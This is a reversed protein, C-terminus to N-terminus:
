ESGEQTIKSPPYNLNASRRRPPFDPAAFAAILVRRGLTGAPAPAVAVSHGLNRAHLRVAALVEHTGDLREVDGCKDDVYVQPASGPLMTLGASHAYTAVTHVLDWWLGGLRRLWDGPAVSGPLSQWM